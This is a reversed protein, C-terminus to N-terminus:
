GFDGGTAGAEGGGFVTALTGVTMTCACCFVGGGAAATFCVAGFGFAVGGAFVLVAATFVGEGFAVATFTGFDVASVDTEATAEACAFGFGVVATGVVGGLSTFGTEELNAGNARGGEGGSATTATALGAAAAAALAVALGLVVVTGLGAGVALVVVALAAVALAEVALMLLLM